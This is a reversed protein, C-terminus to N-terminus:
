PKVYKVMAYLFMLGFLIIFFWCGYHGIKNGIEYFSNLFVTMLM